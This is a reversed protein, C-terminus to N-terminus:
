LQAFLGRLSDWGFARTQAPNVEVTATRGAILQVGEPVKDLTM